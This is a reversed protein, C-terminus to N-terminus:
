ETQVRELEIASDIMRHNSLWLVEQILSTITAPGTESAPGGHAFRNRLAVLRELRQLDAKPLVNRNQGLQRKANLVSIVQACEGFTLRALPKKQKGTPPAPIADAVRGPDATAHVHLTMRLLGEGYRCAQQIMGISLTARAPATKLEGLWRTLDRQADDRLGRLSDM